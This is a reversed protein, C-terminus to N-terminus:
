EGKEPDMQAKHRRGIRWSTEMASGRRIAEPVYKGRIVDMKRDPKRAKERSGDDFLAM